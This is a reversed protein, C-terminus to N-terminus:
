LREDLGASSRPAQKVNFSSRLKDIAASQEQNHERGHPSPANETGPPGVPNQPPQRRLQGTIVVNLELSLSSDLLSSAAGERHATYSSPTSFSSQSPFGTMTRLAMVECCTPELCHLSAPLLM